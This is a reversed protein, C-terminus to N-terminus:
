VRADSEMVKLSAIFEAILTEGTEFWRGVNCQTRASGEELAEVSDIGMEVIKEALRKAKEDQFFFFAGRLQIVIKEKV